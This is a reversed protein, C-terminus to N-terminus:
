LRWLPRACAQFEVFIAGALMPFSHRSKAMMQYSTKSKTLMPFPHRMKAVWPSQGALLPFAHSINSFESKKIIIEPKLTSRVNQFSTTTCVELKM